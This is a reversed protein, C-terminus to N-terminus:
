NNLSYINVLGKLLLNEDHIIEHQCYPVILGSMGGTAVATVKQGISKEIRSILGDICSATGYIIGSKMCDSTNKGIINEPPEFSVKPLQSTKGALAELSIKVGAMIIGGIFNKNSDVVSITTATGMDIIVTPLSYYAIVGSADVIRDTGIKEPSDTLIKNIGTKIGYGAVFIKGYGILESLANEVTGTVSPVVSSIVAGEIDTFKVNNLLLVNKIGIYYECATKSHSTAIRETFSFIGNHFGGIVINTNGIDVALIM